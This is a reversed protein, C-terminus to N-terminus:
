SVRRIIAISQPVAGLHYLLASVNYVYVYWVNVCVCMCVYSYKCEGVCVCVSERERQRERKRIVHMCIMCVYMCVHSNLPYTQPYPIWNWNCVYTRASCHMLFPWYIVGLCRLTHTHIYTHTLTHIYTTHLHTHIYMHTYIHTDCVCEFDNMYGYM